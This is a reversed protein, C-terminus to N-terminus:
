SVVFKRIGDRAATYVMGGHVVAKEVADLEAGVFENCVHPTGSELSPVSVLYCQGDKTSVLLKEQELTLSTIAAENRRFSSLPVSEDVASSLKRTDYLTIEGNNSGCAVLNAAPNYAVATLPSSSTRAAFVTTKSGLDWGRLVGDDCAAFVLKDSTEVEKSNINAPPYSHGAPRTGLAIKNIPVELSAIKSIVSASAPEQLLLCGDRSSSLINRGRSIIALDTVGRTHGHLVVPCSGDMVDWVRITLDTAASLVVKGSPFFISSELDGKHGPLTRLPLGSSTSLISLAGNSGGTLLLDGDPSIDLSQIPKPLNDKYHRTPAQVRTTRTPSQTGSTSTYSFDFANPSVYDVKLEPLDSSLKVSSTESDPNSAVNIKGHISPAGQTYLSLWFQAKEARRALVDAIDTNFDHQVTLLPLTLPTAM